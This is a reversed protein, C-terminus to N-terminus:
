MFGGTPSPEWFMEFGSDRAATEDSGMSAQTIPSEIPQM